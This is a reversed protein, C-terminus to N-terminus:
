SLAKISVIELLFSQVTSMFLTLQFMQFMVFQLWCCKSCCCCGLRVKKVWLISVYMVLMNFYDATKNVQVM